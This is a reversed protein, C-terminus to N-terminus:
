LEIVQGERLAEIASADVDFEDPYHILRMKSKIGEDLTLLDSYATHAPGYNTEHVIVDSGALFDILERDFATDSSIGISTGAHEVVLASTPVHHKTLRARITFPGITTASELGVETWAFYDEFSKPRFEHGDWLTGMSAVLRQNWLADKVPAITHLNLPKKQAFHKFYGVGELGNMHDGHVHTVLVDDIAFLDLAGAHAVGTKDRASRLVRRYSDPCDIALRFGEAELLLAHTFHTETFTDGVGLVYLKM